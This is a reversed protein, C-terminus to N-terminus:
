YELINKNSDLASFFGIRLIYLLTLSFFSFGEGDQGSKESTMVVLSGAVRAEEVVRKLLVVTKNIYLFLHSLLIASTLEM